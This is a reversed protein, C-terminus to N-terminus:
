APTSPITVTFTSGRGPESELAIDGGSAQVLHKVIALGLGTGGLARSRAADVRYFREFIRAQQSEPIGIGTDQVEVRLRDGAPRLRIRVVGGPDTYKAANDLLNSLIRELIRADVYARAPEGDDLTAEISREAFMPGLDSLVTAAVKRVDVDSPQLQLRGSEIRSLELLDEILAALREANQRVIGLQKRRQDEPMDRTALLEAFGRIATVPTKLEHSAHAVFDRRMAELRRLETKDHFVAVVGAPRGGARLPVAHVEAVRAGDADVDVDRLLPERSDAAEALLADVEANRIVELPLRGEVAAWVGFLERLGRNALTIRGDPGLVLVGEVMGELVARLQEGDASLEQVRRELAEAMANLDEALQQREDRIRWRLRRELQGSAIARLMEGLERLSRLGSRSLALGLALAAALGIGAAALLARRLEGIAASLDPVAAALRVVGREVPIAVYLLPRGVTASLRTSRGPEGALAARVEPRAAHNEVRDLDSVRVDSDAVVVGDAAM